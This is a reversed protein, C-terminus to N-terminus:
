ISIYLVLCNPAETRPAKDGVSPIKWTWSSTRILERGAHCAALDVMSLPLDPRWSGAEVPSPWPYRCM